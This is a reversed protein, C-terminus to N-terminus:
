PQVEPSPFASRVLGSLVRDDPNKLDAYQFCRDRETSADSIKVKAQLVLTLLCYATARRSDVQIAEQLAIEAEDLHKLGLHAWGLNKLLAYRRKILEEQSYRDRNQELLQLGEQLLPLAQSYNQNQINLRALNNYAEPAGAQVALEYFSQANELQQRAEHLEGVNFLASSNQPDLLLALRYYWWAMEQRNANYEDLGWNNIDASLSIRNSWINVGITLLVSILTMKLLNSRLRRDGRGWQQSIRAFWVILPIWRQLFLHRELKQIAKFIAECSQPRQGPFPAMLCELLDIFLPSLQTAELTRDRWSLQGTQPDKPLDIPDNGTFLYVLTRGLAFFDSQPVAQGEAQEQPTYGASIIATGTEQQQQKVLYTVTVERVAGFDILVLQGDPRLMINAPKIDRHFFQQQHLHALIDILQKLWDIAQAQSLIGGKQQWQQLNVGSIKEMVLCHLPQQQDQQLVFYGDPEVRPIGPHHLQSLVEVERQFLHIAKQRQSPQFSSLNLVKLVKHIGGEEVEFVQGFGGAGLSRLVRYRNQLLDGPAVM